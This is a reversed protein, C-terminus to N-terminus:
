FVPAAHVPTRRFSRARGRFKRRRDALSQNEHGPSVMAGVAASGVRLAGAEALVATRRDCGHATRVTVVHVDWLRHMARSTAVGQPELRNVPGGVEATGRAVSFEGRVTGSCSSEEVTTSAAALEDFVLKQPLEELPSLNSARSQQM